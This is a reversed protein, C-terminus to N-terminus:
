LDGGERLADTLIDWVLQGGIVSGTAQRAIQISDRYHIRRAEAEDARAIAADREAEADPLRKAPYSASWMEPTVKLGCTDCKGFQWGPQAHGCGCTRADLEDCMAIVAPAAEVFADPDALEYAAEAGCAVCCGDEDVRCLGCNVCTPGATSALARLAATDIETM